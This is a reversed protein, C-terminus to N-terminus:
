SRRCVFILAQDKDFKSYYIHFKFAGYRKRRSPRGQYPQEETETQLDSEKEVRKLKSKVKEYVESITSLMILGYLVM